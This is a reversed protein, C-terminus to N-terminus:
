NYETLVMEEFMELLVEYHWAEDESTPKYQKLARYILKVDDTEIFMGGDDEGTPSEGDRIRIEVFKQKTHSPHKQQPKKM